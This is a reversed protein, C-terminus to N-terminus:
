SVNQHFHEIIDSHDDLAAWLMARAVCGKPINQHLFNVIELHSYVAALDM